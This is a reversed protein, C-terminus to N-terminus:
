KPSVLTVFFVGLGVFSHQILPAIIINIARHSLGMELLKPNMLTFAGYGVAGWMLCLMVWGINRRTYLGFIYMVLMVIVPTGAGILIAMKEMWTQSNM